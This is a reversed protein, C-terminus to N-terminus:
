LENNEFEENGVGFSIEQIPSLQNLSKPYGQKGINGENKWRTYLEKESDDFDVIDQYRVKGKKLIKDYMLKASKYGSFTLRSKGFDDSRVYVWYSEKSDSQGKNTSKNSHFVEDIIVGVGIGILFPFM